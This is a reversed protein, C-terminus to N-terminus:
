LYRTPQVKMPPYLHRKVQNEEKTHKINSEQSDGVDDEQVHKQDNTTQTDTTIIQEATLADRM